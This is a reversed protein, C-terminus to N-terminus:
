LRDTPLSNTFTAFNAHPSYETMKAAAVDRAKQSPFRTRASRRLPIIPLSPSNPNDPDPVRSENSSDPKIDAIDTSRDDPTSNVDTPPMFSSTHNEEEEEVREGGVAPLTVLIQEDFSVDRSQVVRGNATYLLYVGREGYGVMRGRFGHADLKGPTKDVITGWAAVGFPRLHSVDMRREYWIEAPIEFDARAAPLLNDTYVVYACAYSWLFPPLGSDEIITRVREFTTGHRREAVGNAASSYPTTIELRIGHKQAWNKWLASNFEMGGDIRVCALKNDTEKEARVRYREMADLTVASEKNALYFDSTMSSHDDVIPMFYYYGGLSQTRMPGTLDVHVRALRRPERVTVADFPRRKAKGIHCPDCERLHSPDISGNITLGDLLKRRIALVIRSIGAHAFRRHWGTLDVPKNLSRAKITLASSKNPREKLTYLGNTGYGTLFHTGDPLFFKAIGKGFLIQCGKGDLKSISVLDSSVNPTHLARDFTVTIDKGNHTFTKIAKGYGIVALTTNAESSQCDQSCPTYTIFNSRDRFFHDSAGSDACTNIKVNAVSLAYHQLPEGVDSSTANAVPSGTTRTDKKGKWWAPYQGEKGGGKRFCDEAVHGVRLCNPNSCKKEPSRVSNLAASSASLMKELQDIRAMLAAHNAKPLSDGSVAADPRNESRSHQYTIHQIISAPSKFTTPNAMINQMITDFETTPFAALLLERAIIDSVENGSEIASKRLERFVQFFEELTVSPNRYKHNRLRTMSHVKRMEDTQGFENVLADLTEQANLKDVNTILSPLDSIYSEITGKTRDNRFHWEERSPANSYVPTPDPRTPSTTVPPLSISGDVYGILGANKLANQIKREIPKWALRIGGDFKQDEPVEPISPPIAGNSAM